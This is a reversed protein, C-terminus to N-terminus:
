EGKIKTYLERMNRLVKRVTRENIYEDEIYERGLREVIAEIHSYDDRNSADMISEDLWLDELKQRIQVRDFNFLQEPLVNGAILELELCRILVAMYSVQYYSM